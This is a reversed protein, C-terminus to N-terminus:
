EGVQTYVEELTTIGALAKTIGDQLLTVMGDKIAAQKIADATTAATGRAILDEMKPTIELQEMISIRGQYGFHHCANCGVAQYLQQGELNPRDHEPLSNTATKIQLIETKSPDYPAKCVNCLQRVLRQAM